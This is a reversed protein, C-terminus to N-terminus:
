QRLSAHISSRADQLTQDVQNIQEVVEKAVDTVTEWADAIAERCDPSSLAAGIMTVIGPIDVPSSMGGAGRAATTLFHEDGRPDYHEGTSQAVPDM